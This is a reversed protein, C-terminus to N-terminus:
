MVYATYGVIEGTRDKVKRFYNYEPHRAIFVSVESALIFLPNM